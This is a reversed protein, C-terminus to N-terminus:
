KKYCQNNNIDQTISESLDQQMRNIIDPSYSNPINIQYEKILETLINKDELTMKSLCTVPKKQEISQQYLYIYLGVYNLIKVKDSKNNAQYYRHEIESLTPHFENNLNM